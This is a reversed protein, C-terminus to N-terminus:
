FFFYVFLYFYLIERLFERGIYSKEVPWPAVLRIRNVCKSPRYGFANEVCAHM